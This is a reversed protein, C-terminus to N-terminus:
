RVASTPAPISATAPPSRRPARLREGGAVQGAVIHVHQDVRADAALLELRGGGAGHGVFQLEVGVGRDVIQAVGAQAHEVADHVDGIPDFQPLRPRAQHDGGFGGALDVFVDDVAHHPGLRELEKAVRHRREGAARTRHGHQHGTLFQRPFLAALEETADGLVGRLIVGEAAPAHLRDQRGGHEGDLLDEAVLGAGSTCRLMSKPRRWTMIGNMSVCAPSTSFYPTSRPM